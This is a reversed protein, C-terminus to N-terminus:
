SFCYDKLFFVFIRFSVKGEPGKNNFVREKTYLLPTIAFKLHEENTGLTDIIDKFRWEKQQNYLLCICAQMVSM